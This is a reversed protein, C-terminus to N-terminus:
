PLRTALRHCVRDAIGAHVHLIPRADLLARDVADIFAAPPEIDLRVFADIATGALRDARDVRDRPLTVATRVPTGFDGLVQLEEVTGRGPRSSARPEGPDADSM